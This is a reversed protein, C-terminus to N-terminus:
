AGVVAVIGAVHRGRRAQRDFSARLRSWSLPGGLPTVETGERWVGVWTRGAADTYTHLDVLRLGSRQLKRWETVFESWRGSAYLAHGDRGPEWVGLWSRGHAAPLSRVRRLRLGHAAQERWREVLQPWGGAVEVTSSTEGSATWVVAWADAAGPVPAMDELVHGAAARNVVADLALLEIRQDAPPGAWGGVWHTQGDVDVEGCLGRLASTRRLGRVRELFADWGIEGYLAGPGDGAKYLPVFSPPVRPRPPYDLRVSLRAWASQDQGDYIVVHLHNLGPRGVYVRGAFGAGPVIWGAGPLTNIPALGFRAAPRQVLLPARLTNLLLGQSRNVLRLEMTAGEGDLTWDGPDYAQAVGNLYLRVRAPVGLTEQVFTENAGGLRITLDVQDGGGEGDPVGSIAATLKGPTMRAVLAATQQDGSSDDICQQVQDAQRRRDAMSQLSETLGAVLAQTAPTGIAQRLSQRVSAEPVTLTLKGIVPLIVDFTFSGPSSQDIQAQVAQLVSTTSGGGGAVVAAATDHFQQPLSALLAMLSAAESPLNSLDIQWGDSM